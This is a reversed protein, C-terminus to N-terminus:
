HKLRLDSVFYILLHTGSVFYHRLLLEVLELGNLLITIFVVEQRLLVYGHILQLTMLAVAKAM